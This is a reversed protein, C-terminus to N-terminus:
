CFKCLALLAQRKEPSLSPLCDLMHRITAKIDDSNKHTVLLAKVAIPDQIAEVIDAHLDRPSSSARNKQLKLEFKRDDESKRGEHAARFFEIEEQHSLKFKKSLKECANYDPPPQRGKEINSLYTSKAIFGLDLSLETFKFDGRSRYKKLLNKYEM